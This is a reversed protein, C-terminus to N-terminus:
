QQDMACDFERQPLQREIGTLKDFRPLLHAIKGIPKVIDIAAIPPVSSFQADGISEPVVRDM